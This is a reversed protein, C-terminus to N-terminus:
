HPVIVQGLMEYHLEKVSEQETPVGGCNAPSYQEQLKQNMWYSDVEKGASRVVALNHWRGDTGIIGYIVVVHQQAIDRLQSPMPVPNLKDRNVLRAPEPNPCWRLASADPPPIFSSPTFTAEALEQVQIQVLPRNSAFETLTRPFQHGDFSVYDEFQYGFHSYKHEVRTPIPSSPALSVIWSGIDITRERSGNRTKEKVKSPKANPSPHLVQPFDLLELLRFIELPLVPPNRSIFLKDLMAVRVQSYDAFKIEDRWATPSEWALNYMGEAALDKGDYMQVRAALRFSRGGSSRINTLEEAQQLLRQAEAAEDSTAKMKGSCPESPAFAFLAWASILLILKM